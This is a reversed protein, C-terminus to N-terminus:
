KGTILLRDFRQEAHKIFIRDMKNASRLSSERMFHTDNDINAKRGKKISYLFTYDMEVSGKNRKFKNVRLLASEDSNYMIRNGKWAKAAAGIFKSKSTGKIISKPSSILSPNNVIRGLKSKDGIRNKAEIMRSYSGGIRASDYPMFDRSGIKGGYEQEELDAVAQTGKRDWFGVRSQMSKLDLGKAFEVRSKARWFTPQRKEFTLSATHPMTVQKVDMAADNLTKRIISPLANKHIRELKNAYSVLANTNVNLTPM